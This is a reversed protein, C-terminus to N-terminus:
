DFRLHIWIRLYCALKQHWLFQFLFQPYSSSSSSSSSSSTPSNLSLSTSSSSLSLPSLSPSTSIPSPSLLSLSSSLSPSSSSPLWTLPTVIFPSTELMFCTISSVYHHKKFCVVKCAPSSVVNVNRVVVDSCFSQETKSSVVTKHENSRIVNLQIKVCNVSICAAPAISCVDHGHVRM